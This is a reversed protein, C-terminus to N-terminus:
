APTGPFQNSAGGSAKIPARESSHDKKRTINLRLLTRNVTSRSVHTDNQEALERALGDESADPTAQVLALLKAEGQAVLARCEPRDVAFAKPAVSGKKRKLAWWRRVTAEGGGSDVAVLLPGGRGRVHSWGAGRGRYPRTAQGSSLARSPLLGLASAPPLGSAAPGSHPGDMGQRLSRRFGLWSSRLSPTTGRVM